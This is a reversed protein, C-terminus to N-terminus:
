RPFISQTAWLSLQASPGFALAVVLHSDPTVAGALQITGGGAYSYTRLKGYALTGLGSGRRIEHLNAFKPSRTFGHVFGDLLPDLRARRANVRDIAVVATGATDGDNSYVALYPLRTNQRRRWDAAACFSVGADHADIMQLAPWTSSVQASGALRGNVYLDVRYRGPPMCSDTRPWIRFVGSGPRYDEVPGSLDPVGEWDRRGPRRVFWQASLTDRAPDFGPSATFSFTATGPDIAAAVGRLAVTPRSTSVRLTKGAASKTGFGGASVLTSEAADAARAVAAGRVRKLFELDTLGGSVDTERSAEITSPDSSPSDRPPAPPAPKGTGLLAAQRVVTGRGRIREAARGYAATAENTRGLALLAAGLNMSPLPNPARDPRLREADTSREISQTLDEVSGRLVGRYFLDVGLEVSLFESDNGLKRAARADQIARDLAEPSPIATVSGRAGALYLAASRDILAQVFSPQEGLVRDYLKVARQYRGTDFAERAQAYLEGIGRQPSSPQNASAYIGFGVASIAFAGAIRVYWKRRRRGPPTLSYGFLFVAVAFVTLSVAYRVFQKEAEEARLNQEERRAVLVNAASRTHALYRAPFASDALPGYVGDRAIAEAYADPFQAKLAATM